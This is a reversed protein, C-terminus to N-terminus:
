RELLEVFAAENGKARLRLEDAATKLRAAYEERRGLVDRLVSLAREADFRELDGALPMNLAHACASVKPDYVVGLVPVGSCAAFIMSHLRTSVVADMCSLMDAMTQPDYSASVEYSEATMLKRVAASAAGDAEQQMDLFVVNATESLADCFKAFEAVNTEMGSAFRVSVGVLPRDTPVRRGALLVRGREIEGGPMAFVPDATVRINPNKVGMDRLAQLSEEDRLTIVDAMEAVARVRERDRATEVPGIGNAYFM